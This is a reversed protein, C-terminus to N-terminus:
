VDIVLNPNFDKLNEKHYGHPNCVVRCNGVMYDFNHHTHGHIWLKIKDQSLIYDSLESCYGGNMLTDNLYIEHISQHTPSHHGLVVVKGDWTEAALKITEVARVHAEMTDVPRLKHYVGNREITVVHFDNMMNKIHMLTLPDGKNMDTWLTTGVIRIDGFNLWLDDMLTINPWPDLAERLRNATENWRGSYHEHNGMIYLVRDFEKSVQDFFQRYRSASESNEVNNPYNSIPHRHLHQALCVDGALCLIDAGANNIRVDKNFELHLDSVIQLKM